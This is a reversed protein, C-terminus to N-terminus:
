RHRICKWLPKFTTVTGYGPVLMWPTFTEQEGSAQGMTSETNEGAKAAALAGVALLHREYGATAFGRLSARGSVAMSAQLGRISLGRNVMAGIEAASARLLQGGARGVAGLPAGLGWIYLADMGLALGFQVWEASCSQTTSQQADLLREMDYAQNQPGWCDILFTCSGYDPASEPKTSRVHVADLECPSSLGFAESCPDTGSPDMSNVPDNNAYAYLNHGGAIGIPDESIFRGLDPDYYRAGMYYLRTGQDYQQGAMRLKVKVGTDASAEGWSRFQSRKRSM